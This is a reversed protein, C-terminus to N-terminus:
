IIRRSKRLLARLGNTYHDKDIKTELASITRPEMCVVRAPEDKSCIQM